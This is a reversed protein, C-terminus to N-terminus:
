IGMPDAKKPRKKQTGYTMKWKERVINVQQSTSKNWFYGGVKQWGGEGLLREFSKQPLLFHNKQTRYENKYQITSVNQLLNEEFSNYQMKLQPYM